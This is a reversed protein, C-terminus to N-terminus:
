KIVSEAFKNQHVFIILITFRVSIIIYFYMINYITYSRENRHLAEHQKIYTQKLSTKKTNKLRIYFFNILFYM